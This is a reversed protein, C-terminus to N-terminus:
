LAGIDLKARQLVAETEALRGEALMLRRALEARESEKAEIARKVRTRIESLENVHRRQFVCVLM